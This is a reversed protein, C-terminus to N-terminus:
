DTKKNYVGLYANRGVDFLSTIFNKNEVLQVNYIYKENSLENVYNKGVKQVSNLYELSPYSLNEYKMTYYLVCTDKTIEYVNSTYPLYTFLRNSNRYFRYIPRM